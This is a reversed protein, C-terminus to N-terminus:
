ISLGKDFVTLTFALACVFLVFPFCSDYKQSRVPMEKYIFKHSLDLEM